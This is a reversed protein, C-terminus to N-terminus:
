AGRTWRWVRHGQLARRTLPGSFDRTACWRCRWSPGSRSRDAARGPRVGSSRGPYAIWAFADVSPFGTDFTPMPGLGREPPNCLDENGNQVRDNPVLPGRGNMATNVVFHKGGTM